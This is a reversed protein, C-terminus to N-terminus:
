FGLEKELEKKVQKRETKNGYYMRLVMELDAKDRVHKKIEQQLATDILPAVVENTDYLDYFDTMNKIKRFHNLYTDDDIRETLKVELTGDDMLNPKYKYTSIERIKKSVDTYYQGTIVFQVDLKRSYSSMVRTFLDFDKISVCDDVIIFVGDSKDLLSVPFVLAPSWIFNPLYNVHKDIIDWDSIKLKEKLYLYKRKDLSSAFLHHNSYITGNPFTKLFILALYSAFLTKGKGMVETSYYVTM